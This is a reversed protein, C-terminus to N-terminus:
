TMWFAPSKGCRVTTSLTAASGRQETASLLFGTRCCHFEEFTDSQIGFERAPIGPLEGAALLLTDTHRPCEGGIWRGASPRAKLATSGITRLWNCSSNRRRCASIELVMTITVWSM